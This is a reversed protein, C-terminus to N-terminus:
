RVWRIYPKKLSFLFRHVRGESKILHTHQHPITKVLSTPTRAYMNYGRKEYKEILDVYEGKQKLTMGSLDEVHKKPTIMIHDTVTQADWLSYPFSNVIVKFSSTQEIYDKDGKKIDCFVCSHPATKLYRRYRLTEKRSRYTTM